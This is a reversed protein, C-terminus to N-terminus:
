SKNEEEGTKNALDLLSIVVDFTPRKKHDHVLLRNAIDRLPKLNPHGPPTFRTYVAFDALDRLLRGFAAVEIKEVWPHKSHDYAWAAGLDSLYVRAKDKELGRTPEKADDGGAELTNHMYIDGHAFGRHHMYALAQALSLATPILKQPHFAEYNKRWHPPLDQTMSDLDPRAGLAHAGDLYYMVLGLAPAKLSALSGAINPHTLISHTRIEGEPSGDSFRGQHKWVKVAVSTGKYTGRYTTGGSGQGLPDDGITVDELSIVPKSGTM